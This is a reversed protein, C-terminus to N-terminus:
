TASFALVITPSMEFIEFVGRFVYETFDIRLLAYYVSLCFFHLFVSTNKKGKSQLYLYSLKNSFANKFSKECQLYFFEYLSIGLKSFHGSLLPKRAILRFYCKEAQWMEGFAVEVGGV